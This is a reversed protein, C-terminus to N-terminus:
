GVADEIGLPVLKQAVSRRDVQRRLCESKQLREDVSMWRGDRLFIEILLEPRAREHLDPVQVRQDGLQSVRDTVIMALDDTGNMAESVRESGFYRGFVRRRIQDDARTLNRQAAALVDDPAIDDARGIDRATM